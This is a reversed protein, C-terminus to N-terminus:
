RKSKARAKPKPKPKAPMRAKVKAKAVLPASAPGPDVPPELIVYTDDNPNIVKARARALVHSFIEPPIMGSDNHPAPATKMLSKKALDIPMRLDTWADMLSRHGQTRWEWYLVMFFQWSVTPPPTPGYNRLRQDWDSRPSYRNPETYPM